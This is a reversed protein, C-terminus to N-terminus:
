REKHICCTNCTGSASSCAKATLYSHPVHKHQHIQQGQNIAEVVPQLQDACTARTKCHNPQWRHIKCSHMQM